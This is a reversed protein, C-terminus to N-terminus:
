PLDTLQLVFVFSGPALSLNQCRLQDDLRNLVSALLSACEQSGGRPLCQTCATHVHTDQVQNMTCASIYNDWVIDLMYTIHFLNYLGWDDM